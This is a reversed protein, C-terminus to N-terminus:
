WVEVPFVLIKEPSQILDQVSTKIAIQNLSEKM